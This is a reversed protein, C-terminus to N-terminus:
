NHLDTNDMNHSMTLALMYAKMWHRIKDVCETITFIPVQHGECTIYLLVGDAYMVYQLGHLLINVELPMTYTCLFVPGSVSGQPIGCYIPRCPPHNLHWLFVSCVFLIYSPLPPSEFTVLVCLLCVISLVALPPSEFTVPVCFLCVISLITLPTIWIDCSCLASLCYIPHYPPSEFTVSVCFLCCYIPHYPPHNLHWLFVSCVFLLYSPLPTIWIDCFCLASLCYIPRYPPHNLHWLFVSCVFLLYSPLPPSEFTVSVCFLCVISLVNLPTIWIDCFCLVSLCYIPRYPPHNLHWLFVSCVFLLYSTLPPSEFTVPVCFLCVISLITLPHNLHWLFVSCVFLLYSPLPPHNLHWLFVSCVFLILITLPTIWIDCFCLVSLLLYSPLPPSEFTVLVCLLCVISLITLPHNLHWLFVSCVFLLYSPLPPHNLHWLFVSCVFLLYSPLPPSEFTVSVCFLCVISLVNLPTIWIDCFCLVSLCYIPRYPPHNLHWLFVSCVFLLYSTLPPSEFTVPVCFLCVISLITLPHNLHWLFVSCVFLLYSPLPPHNLHWLFVSCVFLLYSPLPPSEFTVLVCFLCVISLVNLPTIWIDCFCLVSLCYIPRYPPHNLHWLFVSCVFLLYSPLPPSEFTVSVCFLCVISLFTLPPSEFTVSCVFLLYSPLPPHNLHWFFVSCVSLLYSLLPPYNLHWLVSRCPFSVMQQPTDKLRFYLSLESRHDTLLCRCVERVVEEMVQWWTLVGFSVHCWRSNTPRNDGM